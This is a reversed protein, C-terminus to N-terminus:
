RRNGMLRLLMLFMNIFDLYLTLAGGLSVKNLTSQDGSHQLYYDKLKQTDYATLITFIGVGILSIAYSMMPSQLFFNVLMAIIIGFLAMRAMGGIGTLNKKTVYGYLASAGFMGTTTVFATFISQSTYVLLVVSLTVGNLAAYSLFMAFLATMSAGKRLAIGFGFVLGLEAFILVYFLPSMLVTQIFAESSSTFFAVCSTIGLGLAMWTFTQLMFQSLGQEQAYVDPLSKQYNSFNM